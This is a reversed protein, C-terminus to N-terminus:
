VLDDRFVGANHPVATINSNVRGHVWGVEVKTSSAGEGIPLSLGTPPEAKPVGKIKYGMAPDDCHLWSRQILSNRSLDRSLNLKEGLLGSTACGRDVRQGSRGVAIPANETTLMKSKTRTMPLAEISPMHSLIISSGASALSSGTNDFGTNNMRYKVNDNDNSEPEDSEKREYKVIIGNKDHLAKYKSYSNRMDERLRDIHKDGFHERYTTTKNYSVVGRDIKM